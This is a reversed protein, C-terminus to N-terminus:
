AEVSRRLDALDKQLMKRLSGSMLFGLPTMLKAFLSLPKGEFEWTVETAGDDADRFSFVSAYHTGHSEAEVVYSDPPDLATIEMDETAEKGFMVRTERWRVGLGSRTESLFEIEKIGEIRKTAGELDTFVVFVDDRRAQIKEKAVVKM